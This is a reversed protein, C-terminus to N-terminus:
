KIDSKEQNLREHEKLLHRNTRINFLQASLQIILLIIWFPTWEWERNFLKYILVAILSTTLIFVIFYQMKIASRLKQPGTAAALWKREQPTLPKKDTTPITSKM